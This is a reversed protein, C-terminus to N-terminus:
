ISSMLGTKKPMFSRIVISTTMPSSHSDSPVHIGSGRGAMLSPPVVFVIQIKKAAMEQAFTAVRQAVHTEVHASASSQARGCFSQSLDCPNEGSMPKSMAFCGDWNAPLDAGEPKPPPHNFPPLADAANQLIETGVGVNTANRIWLRVNSALLPGFDDLRRFSYPIGPLLYREPWTLGM